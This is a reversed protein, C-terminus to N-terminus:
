IHLATATLLIVIGLYQDKRDLSLHWSEFSFGGGVGALRCPIVKVKVLLPM